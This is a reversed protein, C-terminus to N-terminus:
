WSTKGRECHIENNWRAPDEWSFISSQSEHTRTRSCVVPKVTRDDMLEDSKWEQSSWARDDDRGSYRASNSSEVSREHHHGSAHSTDRGVVPQETRDYEEAKASWPSQSEYSRKGLSESASSSSNSPARAILSMMPRSTATVREEGSDKHPSKSMVESCHTSSFDSINFLCLLHNWEDRTFSGKTLIDALQNKTDIYKFEIKHDLNIRDFACDLSVRHTRSFMDRHRRTSYITHFRDLFRVLRSIWRYELSWRHAERAQCGFEHSYNQFRWHIETSYPIM